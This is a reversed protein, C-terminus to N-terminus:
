KGGKKGDKTYRVSNYISGDCNFDLLVVNEEMSLAPKNVARLIGFDIKNDGDGNPRWGAVYIYDNAPDDPDLEIGLEELVQALIVPRGTASMYRNWYSEQSRLFSITNVPDKPCRKSFTESFEFAYLSARKEPDVVPVKCKVTKEKGNEDTIKATTETEGEIGYIYRRDCEEGHEQINFRRYRQFSEQTAALLASVQGFRRFLVIHGGITMAMGGAFAISPMGILLFMQWVSDARAKNLEKEAEKLSKKKEEASLEENASIDEIKKEAADVKENGVAITEDIKRANILGWVFAGGAIIVGGIVLIEPKAKKVAFLAKGGGKVLAKPVHKIITLMGM